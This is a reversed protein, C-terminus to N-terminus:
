STSPWRPSTRRGGVRRIPLTTRLYSRVRADLQGGLIAASLRTDGFGAAILKVRVPALELALNKTMAPLAATLASILALSPAM